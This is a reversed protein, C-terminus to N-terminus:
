VTGAGAGGAVWLVFVLAVIDCVHAEKKGFYKKNVASTFSFHTSM